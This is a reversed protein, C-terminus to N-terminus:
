VAAMPASIEVRNSRSVLKSLYGTFCLRFEEIEGFDDPLFLASHKPISVAETQTLIESVFQSCFYRNKRPWVLRMLCLIVGLFNYKFNYARKEHDQLELKAVDYIEKTVELQYLRCPIEQKKFTPHKKPLEKRFGKTVYSYFTGETDGIGISAHTYKCRTFVRFLKSYTDPYRVLLVYLYHKDPLNMQIDAKEMENRSVCLM